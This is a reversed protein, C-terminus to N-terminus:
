RGVNGLMVVERTSLAIVRCSLLVSLRGDGVGEMGCRVILWGCVLAGGTMTKTEGDGRMSLGGGRAV